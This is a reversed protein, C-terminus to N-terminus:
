KKYPDKMYQHTSSLQDILGSLSSLWYWCYHSEWEQLRISRAQYYTAYQMTILDFYWNRSTWWSYQIDKFYNINSPVNRCFPNTPYYLQAVLLHKRRLLTLVSAGYQKSVRYDLSIISCAPRSSTNMFRKGYYRCSPDVRAENLSTSIVPCTAITYTGISNTTSRCMRTAPSSYAHFRTQFFRGFHQQRDPILLQTQSELLSHFCEM